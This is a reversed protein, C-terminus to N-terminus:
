VSRVTATTREERAVDRHAVCQNHQEVLRRRIRHDLCLRLIAMTSTCQAFSHVIHEDIGLIDINDATPEPIQISPGSDITLIYMTM